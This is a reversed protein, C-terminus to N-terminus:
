FFSDFSVCVLFAGIGAGQWFDFLFGRFLSSLELFNLESREVHELVLEPCDFFLELRSGFDVFCHGELVFVLAVYFLGIPGSMMDLVLFEDFEFIELSGSFGFYIAKRQSFFHM